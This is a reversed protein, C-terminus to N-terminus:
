VAPPARAPYVVSGSPRGPAQPAAVLRSGAAATPANLLIGQPVLAGSASSLMPFCQLCVPAGKIPLAPAVSPQSASGEDSQCYNALIDATGAQAPDPLMLWGFLNVLVALMALALGARGRRRLARFITPQATTKIM